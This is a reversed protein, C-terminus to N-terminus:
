KKNILSYQSFELNDIKYPGIQTRHLKIVKYGLAEFTRRIQRNRGEHMTIQLWYDNTDFGVSLNIKTGNIKKVDFQSIGDSLTVGGSTIAKYDKEELNKNIKVEYVKIKETKPHTLDYILQGDDTLLLLGSSDKDLRGAIRLNQYKDPLLQYITSNGQGQRSCVYGTPKNFLLYTFKNKAVLIQGDYIVEDGDKVIDSIQAIEGNIKAKSALVLEDAKRRGIGLNIALYRNIRM